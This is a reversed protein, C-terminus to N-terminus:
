SAIIFTCNGTSTSMESRIPAIDVHVEYRVMDLPSLHSTVLRTRFTVSPKEAPYSPDHITEKMISSMYFGPTTDSEPANVISTMVASSYVISMTSPIVVLKVDAIVFLEQELRHAVHEPDLLM